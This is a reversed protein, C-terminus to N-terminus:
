KRMKVARSIFRPKSKASYTPAASHYTVTAGRAIAVVDRASLKVGKSRITEEGSEAKLYYLKRGAFAGYVYRGLHEWEGLRDSYPIGGLHEAYVSDTDCYLVGTSAKIARLLQARVYGTISASTAVNYYRKEDDDLDRAVLFNEGFETCFEYESFENESNENDFSEPPLLLFKEYNDPNAGFKGYLSNMFIKCFINQAKDGDAKAKQRLKYFYTVYDTFDISEVFQYVSIIKYDDLLGLEEAALVEWGTAYFTYIEGDDPFRLSKDEDRLPFAGRAPGALVVFVAGQDREPLRRWADADIAQYELGIPHRRLMAAPYASNIDAGQFEGKHEGHFFCETRGGYYFHKFSQYLAGDVDNPPTEGAMNEWIFLAASAQTLHFGYHDVFQSVLEYLYVCDTRLYERIKQYNKPIYRKDKEMLGYDIEDKKYTELSIPLLNFSDRFEARGIKFSALRGNIIKINEFPTIFPLLFHWDFKGGNHAYIIVPQDIVYMIFDLTDDFERYNEGDYYGWIFPQPFRNHRFPDTECDAVAIFRKKSIKM